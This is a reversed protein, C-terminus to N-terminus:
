SWKRRPPIAPRLPELDLADTSTELVSGQPEGAEELILVLTESVLRHRGESDPIRAALLNIGGEDISRLLTVPVEAQGNEDLTVDQRDIGIVSNREYPDIDYGGDPVGDLFLAAETHLVEVTADAPGAIQLLVEAETVTAPSGVAVSLTPEAELDARLHVEGGSDSAPVAFVEGTVEAGDAYSVSVSSGTLELGSM